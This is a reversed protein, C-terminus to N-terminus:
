VEMGRWCRRAETKVRGHKVGMKWRGRHGGEMGGEVAM